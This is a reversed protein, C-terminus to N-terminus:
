VAWALVWHKAPMLGAYRGRLAGLEVSLHSVRNTMYIQGMLPLASRAKKLKHAHEVSPLALEM